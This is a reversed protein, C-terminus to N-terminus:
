ISILCIRTRTLMILFSSIAYSVPFSEHQHQDCLSDPFSDHEFDSAGVAAGSSTGLAKEGGNYSLSSEGM